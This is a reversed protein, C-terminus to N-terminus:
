SKMGSKFKSIPNTLMMNEKAKVAYAAPIIALFDESIVV